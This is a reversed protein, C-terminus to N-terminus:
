GSSRVDTSSVIAFARHLGAGIERDLMSRDPGVARHPPQAARAADVEALVAFRHAADADGQVDGFAARQLLLILLRLLHFGDSPQGAAHRVVEVIQQGHNQPVALQQQGIEIRVIRALRVDRLNLLRARAGRPERALQQGEAALLDDLRRQEVQVHDHGVHPRHESAEDPFVHLDHQAEPGLQREHLGIAPLHLLDDHVERHVRPIGHRSAARQRDLGGVDLEVLM